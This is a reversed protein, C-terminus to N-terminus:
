CLGRVVVAGFHALCARPVGALMGASVRVGFGPTIVATLAPTPVATPVAVV